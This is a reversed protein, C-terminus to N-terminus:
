TGRDFRVALHAESLAVCLGYVTAFLTLPMVDCFPASRTIDNDWRVRMDHTLMCVVTRQNPETRYDGLSRSARAKPWSCLNQSGSLIQPHITAKWGDHLSLM